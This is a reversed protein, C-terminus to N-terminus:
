LDVAFYPLLLTAAPVAAPVEGAEFGVSFRDFASMVASVRATETGKVAITCPQDNPVEERDTATDTYRDPIEPQTATAAPVADITCLEASAAAAGGVIAVATMISGALLHAARRSTKM